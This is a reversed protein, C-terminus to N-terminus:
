TPAAQVRQRPRLAGRSAATRRVGIRLRRAAGSCRRKQGPPVTRDGEPGYLLRKRSRHLHHDRHHARLRHRPRPRGRRRTATLLVRLRRPTSASPRSSACARQQTRPEVPTTAHCSRPSAM